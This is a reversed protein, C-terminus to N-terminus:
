SKELKEGLSFVINKGKINERERVEIMVYSFHCHHESVEVIEKQRYHQTGGAQKFKRERLKRVCNDAWVHRFCITGVIYVPGGALAM